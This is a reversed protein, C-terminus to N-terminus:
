QNNRRVQLVRCGINITLLLTILVFATGYAMKLSFGENVLVYLHYPLSMFPDTLKPLHGSYLLTGTYMIPAVAGMAFATGLSISSAIEIIRQPLVIKLITHELSVGLALSADITKQPFEQFIKEIRLTIFPIIMIALTLGASLVSRPIELQMLFFSYGFLGLVISPVGSICQIIFRNLEKLWTHSCFYILYISIAISCLSAFFASVIGVYISGIIAPFIGGATGLPLGAPYTTLFELSLVSSGKWLIYFFIFLVIVTVLIGSLYAWAKLFINKM